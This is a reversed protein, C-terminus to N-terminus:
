RYTAKIADWSLAETGVACNVNVYATPEETGGRVQLPLFEGGPLLLGPQGSPSSPYEAGTVYFHLSELQFSDLMFQFHVLVTAEALAVPSGCGVVYPVNEIPDWFPNCPTQVSSLLAWM